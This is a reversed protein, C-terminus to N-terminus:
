TDSIKNMKRYLIPSCKEERKFKRTFSSWHSYGVEYAIQDITLNTNQLLNKAYEM